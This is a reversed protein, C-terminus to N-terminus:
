DDGAAPEATKATEGTILTSAALPAGNALSRAAGLSLGQKEAWAEAFSKPRQPKDPRDPKAAAAAAKAQPYADAHHKRLAAIVGNTSLGRLGAVAQFNDSNRWALLAAYDDAEQAGFFTAGTAWAVYEGTTMGAPRRVNRTASYPPEIRREHMATRIEAALGAAAIYADLQAHAAPLIAVSGRLDAEYDDKIQTRLQRAAHQARNLTANWADAASLNTLKGWHSVLHTLVVQVDEETPRTAGPINKWRRLITDDLFKKRANPTGNHGKAWQAAKQVTGYSADTKDAIERLRGLTIQMIQDRVATRKNPPPPAYFALGAFPDAPPAANATANAARRQNEVKIAHLPHLM